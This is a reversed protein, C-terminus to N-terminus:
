LKEYYEELRISSCPFLKEKFYVTFYSNKYVINDVTVIMGTGKRRLKDGIKVIM